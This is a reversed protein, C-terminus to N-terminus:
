KARQRQVASAFVMWAVQSEDGSWTLLADITEFNSPATVNLIEAPVFPVNSANKYLFETNFYATYEKETAQHGFSVRKSTDVPKGDTGVNKYEYYSATSETGNWTSWGAGFGPSYAVAVQGDKIYKETM